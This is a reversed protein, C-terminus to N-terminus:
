YDNYLNCLDTKIGIFIYATQKTAYNTKVIRDAFGLEIKLNMQTDLIYAARISATILKTQFGQTTFNGYDNPRNTYSVFVDRGYDTSSSDAGYVTYVCKAEIFLRKIRYNLFTAIEWFNAGMPHALPQNYHGYNQQVSGHAYTYPRVYNYELQFNLKKIGFLDFSKFGVQFAQKNAWWGSKTTDSSYTHKIDRLVEKLVFEDLLVQGYLQQKKFM